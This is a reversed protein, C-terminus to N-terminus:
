SAAVLGAYVSIECLKNIAGYVDGNGGGFVRRAILAGAVAVLAVLGLLAAGTAPGVCAVSIAFALVSGGAVVPTSARVLAGSQSTAAPALWRSVPLTSWRGLAHAAVAAEAFRWGPLQALLSASLGVAFILALAGYTGVRSDHLIELKAARSVHAGAADAADALGDEHLGGTVLVAALVGLLAASTPDLALAAVAQVGAMMAGVFLGVLPFWLAARSLSQADLSRVGVPLWTLFGLAATLDGTM